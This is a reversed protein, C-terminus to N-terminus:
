EGPAWATTKFTYSPRHYVDGTGSPYRKWNAETVEARAINGVETEFCLTMGAKIPKVKYVEDWDQITQLGGSRAYGLCEEPGPRPTDSIGASRANVYQGFEIYCARLDLESGDPSVKDSM